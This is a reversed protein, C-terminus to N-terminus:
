LDGETGRGLDAMVYSWRYALRAKTQEDSYPVWDPYKRDFEGATMNWYDRQLIALQILGELPKLEAKFMADMQPATFDRHVTVLNTFREAMEGIIKESNTM